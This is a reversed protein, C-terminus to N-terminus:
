VIRIGIVSMKVAEDEQPLRRKMPRLLSQTGHLNAVSDKSPPLLVADEAKNKRQREGFERKFIEKKRKFTPIGETNVSYPYFEGEKSEGIDVAVLRKTKGISVKKMKTHFAVQPGHDQKEDRGSYYGSEIVEPLYPLVKLVDAQNNRFKRFERRGHADFLVEAATEKGGIDLSTKVIGGRLEEDYYATIAKSPNNPFRKLYSDTDKSPAKEILNIGSKPFQKVSTKEIKGGTAGKLSGDEDVPIHTGKVTIWKSVDQVRSPNTAYIRGLGYAIGLKFAYGLTFALQENM